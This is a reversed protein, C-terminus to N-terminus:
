SMKLYAYNPYQFQAPDNYNAGYTLEMRIHLLDQGYGHIVDVCEHTQIFHSRKVPSSQKPLKM